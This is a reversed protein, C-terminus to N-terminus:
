SVNKLFKEKRMFLSSHCGCCSSTNLRLLPYMLTQGTIEYLKCWVLKIITFLFHFLVLWRLPLTLQIRDSNKCDTRRLDRTTIKWRKQWMNTYFVRAAHSLEFDGMEKHGVKRLCHWKLSCCISNTM